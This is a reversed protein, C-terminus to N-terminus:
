KLNGDLFRNLEAILVEADMSKYDINLVFQKVLNKRKELKLESELQSIRKSLNEIMDENTLPRKRFPSIRDYM